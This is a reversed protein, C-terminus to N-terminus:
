VVDGKNSEEDKGTYVFFVALSGGATLLYVPILAPPFDAIVLQPVRSFFAAFRVMAAIVLGNIEAFVVGAPHLPYLVLTMLELALSVGALPVIPLNAIINIYSFEGFFAAMVPFIFVQVAATAALPGAIFEPLFRKFIVRLRPGLFLIGFTACYSLLFGPNFLMRPNLIWLVVFSLALVNIYNRDRDMLFCGAGALAMFSARRVSPREGIFIMFFVIFLCLLLWRARGTSFLGLMFFVFLSIFGIHLGSVALIHLTGSRRFCEELGRDLNERNGTLLATAFDSHPSPLLRRNVREVYARMLTAGRLLSWPRVGRTIEYREGEFRAAIDMTRLYSASTGMRDPAIETYVGTGRIIDGRVPVRTGHPFSARVRTKGPFIWAKRHPPVTTEGDDVIVATFSVLPGSLRPYGIVKLEADAGIGYQFVPPTQRYVGYAVGFLFILFYLSLRGYRPRTIMIIGAALAFCGVAPSLWLFSVCARRCGDVLLGAGTFLLASIEAFTLVGFRSNLRPFGM